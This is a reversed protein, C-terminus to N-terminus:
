KIQLMETRERNRKRSKRFVMKFKEFAELKERLYMVIMMRSYDDIFHIFLKEGNYSEVGIPGYLNTHVIELVDELKFNKSKFSTNGM